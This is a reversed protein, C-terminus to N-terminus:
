DFSLMALYSFILSSFHCRFFSIALSFAIAFAYRSAIIFADFIFHRALLQRLMEIIIMFHRFGDAFYRSIFHRFPLQFSIFADIAFAPLIEFIDIILQAFIDAILM